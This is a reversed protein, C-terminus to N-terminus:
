RHHEAGGGDREDIIEIAGTPGRRAAKNPSTPANGINRRLKSLAYLVGLRHRARIWVQAALSPAVLLGLLWWSSDSNGLYIVLALAPPLIATRLDGEARLRDAENELSVIEAEVFADSLDDFESWDSDPIRGARYHIVATVVGGFLDESLSGILYAVFSAVGALAADPLQEGLAILEQVEGNAGAIDEHLILWALLLWLFGAALPGRIERLGPLVQALM